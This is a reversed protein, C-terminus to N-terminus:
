VAVWGYGGCGHCARDGSAFFVGGNAVDCGRGPLRGSGECVPCRQATRATLGCGPRDQLAVPGPGAVATVGNTAWRRVEGTTVLWGPRVVVLRIQVEGAPAVPMDRAAGPIIACLRTMAESGGDARITELSPQNQALDYRGTPYLAGKLATMEEDTVRLQLTIPEDTHESM